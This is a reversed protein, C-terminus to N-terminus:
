CRRMYRLVPGPMQRIPRHASPCALVAAPINRRPCALGGMNSSGNRYKGAHSATELRRTARCPIIQNHLGCHFKWFRYQPLKLHQRFLFAGRRGIQNQTKHFGVNISTSERRLTIEFRAEREYCSGFSPLDARYGTAIDVFYECTVM